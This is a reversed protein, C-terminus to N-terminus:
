VVTTSFRSILLDLPPGARRVLPGVSVLPTALRLACNGIIAWVIFGAFPAAIGSIAGWEFKRANRKLTARSDNIKDQSNKVQDLLAPALDKGEELEETWSNPESGPLYFSAPM